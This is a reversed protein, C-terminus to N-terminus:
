IAIWSMHMKSFTVQPKLVPQVTKDTWVDYEEPVKMINWKLLSRNKGTIVRLLSSISRWALTFIGVWEYETCCCVSFQEWSCVSLAPFSILASWFFFSLLGMLRASQFHLALLPTSSSPPPSDALCEAPEWGLLVGSCVVGGGPQFPPSLPVAAILSFRCSLWLETQKSCLYLLGERPTLLILVCSLSFFVVTESGVLDWKNWVEFEDPKDESFESWEM